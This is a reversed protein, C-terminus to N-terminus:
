AAGPIENYQNATQRNRYNGTKEASCDVKNAYLMEGVPKNNISFNKFFDSSMQKTDGRTLERICNKLALGAIATFEKYRFESPYSDFVTQFCKNFSKEHLATWASNVLDPIIDGRGPIDYSFCVNDIENKVFLDYFLEGSDESFGPSGIVDNEENHCIDIFDDEHYRVWIAVNPYKREIAEIFARVLEKETKKM